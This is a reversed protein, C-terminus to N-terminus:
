LCLHSHPHPPVGAYQIGKSFFEMQGIVIFVQVRLGSESHTVPQFRRLWKSKASSATDKQGGLEAATAPHPTFSVPQGINPSPPTLQARVTEGLAKFLRVYTECKM